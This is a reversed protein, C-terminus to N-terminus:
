HRPRQQSVVSNGGRPPAAQSAYRLAAVVNNMYEGINYRDHIRRRSALGMSELKAPDRLLEEVRAELEDCAGVPVVYGNEGNAILDEECGDARTAVVPLGHTMAESIVLGGLGPLVLMDGLEFYAAVGDVVQGTFIVDDVGESRAFEELVAQHAGGGVVVVRLDPHSQRLHSYLTILDEVRKFPALKGVFLLVRKDVLGLRERLADV